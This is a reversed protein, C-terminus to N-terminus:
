RTTGGDGSTGVASNPDGDDGGGPDDDAGMSFGGAGGDGYFIFDPPLYEIEWPMMDAGLASMDIDQSDIVMDGFSDGPTPYQAFM